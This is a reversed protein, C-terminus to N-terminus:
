QGPFLGPFSSNNGGSYELDPWYPSFGSDPPSSSLSFPASNDDDLGCCSPSSYYLMGPETSAEETSQTLPLYASSPSFESFITGQEEQEESPLCRRKEPPSHCRYEEEEAVPAQLESEQKQQPPSCDSCVAASLVAAACAIMAARKEIAEASSSGSYVSSGTALRPAADETTPKSHRTKIHGSRHTVAYFAKCLPCYWRIKPKEGLHVHDAHFSNSHRKEQCTMCQYYEDKKSVGPLCYKQYCTRREEKDCKGEERGPSILEAPVPAGLLEPNKVLTLSLQTTLQMIANAFLEPNSTQLKSGAELFSNRLWLQPLPPQSPEGAEESSECTSGTSSSTSSTSSSRTRESKCNILSM